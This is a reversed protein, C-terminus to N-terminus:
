PLKLLGKSVGIDIAANIWGAFMKALDPIRMESEAAATLEGVRAEDDALLDLVLREGLSQQLNGLAAADGPLTDPSNLAAAIEDKLTM